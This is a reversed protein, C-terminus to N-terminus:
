LSKIFKILNIDIVTYYNKIFTIKKEINDNSKMYLNLLEINKLRMNDIQLSHSIKRLLMKLVYLENLVPCRKISFGNENILLNNKYLDDIIYTQFISGIMEGEEGLKLLSNKYNDGYCDLCKPFINRRMKGRCSWDPTTDLFYPIHYKHAFSYIIDKKFDLMPRFVKVDLVINVKKLVCLDTIERNGRMINNFINESLDDNHHGLFVGPCNYLECIQKYYSYRINRTQQEYLSRKIDNRKFEINIFKFDINKHLCYDILFEEEIKSEERNNYNIFICYLNINRYKKIECMIETLVMSDVGGSLSILVESINNMELFRLTSIYLNENIINETKKEGIFTNPELIFNYKHFDM